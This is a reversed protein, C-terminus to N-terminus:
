INKLIDRYLKLSNNNMVTDNMSKEKVENM